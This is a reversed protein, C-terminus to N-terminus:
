PEVITTVEPLGLPQRAQLRPVLVKGITTNTREDVIHALFEEEFIAIGTRVAEIKAKVVLLLARWRRRDEQDLRAKLKPLRFRVRYRREKGWLFEITDGEMDWASAFGSAGQKLLYDELQRRSQIVPVTTRAAYPM